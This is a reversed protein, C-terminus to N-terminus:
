VLSFPIHLHDINLSTFPYAYTLDFFPVTNLKFENLCRYTQNSDSRSLM